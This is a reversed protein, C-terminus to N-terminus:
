YLEHFIMILLLILPIYILYIYLSLLLTFLYVNNQTFVTCKRLPLDLTKNSLLQFIASPMKRYAMIMIVPKIQVPSRDTIDKM